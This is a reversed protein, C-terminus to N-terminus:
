HKLESLAIKALRVKARNTRMLTDTVV